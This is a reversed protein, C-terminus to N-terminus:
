PSRRTAAPTTLHSDNPAALRRSGGRSCLLSPTLRPRHVGTGPNLIKCVQHGTLVQLGHTADRTAFDTM